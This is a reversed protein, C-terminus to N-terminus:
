FSPMNFQPFLDTTGWDHATAANVIEPFYPYWDGAVGKTNWCVVFGIGGNRHLLLREPFNRLVAKQARYADGAPQDVGDFGHGRFSNKSALLIAETKAYPLTPIESPTAQSSYFAIIRAKHRSRFSLFAERPHSPRPPRRRGYEQQRRTAAITPCSAASSSSTPTTVPLKTPSSRRHLLTRRTFNYRGTNDTTNVHLPKLVLNSVATFYDTGTVKAIIQGLLFYGFNSYANSTGPPVTGGLSIMYSAIQDATAPLHVAPQNPHAANFAAIAKPERGYADTPYGSNM